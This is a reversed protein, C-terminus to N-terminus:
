PEMPFTHILASFAGHFLSSLPLHFLAVAFLTLHRGHMVLLITRLVLRFYSLFQASDSTLEQLRLFTSYTSGVSYVFPLNLSFSKDFAVAQCEELLFLNSVIPSM